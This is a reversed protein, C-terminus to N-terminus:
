KVIEFDIWQLAVRQKEKALNDTVIIQLIYEGEPFDSGLQIRSGGTIRQLDPQGAIAIPVTEGTYILKGNRFIRSQSTLQPLHTASDLQAKYVAYAFMLNAGQRFRRVPPVSGAEEASANGSPSQSPVSAGSVQASDTGAGLAIGSLALHDKRLDPVEVVQGATGVHGSTKDRVAIRFQLAGTTKVPVDFGYVVGERLIRAYQQEKLQLTATQSREYMVMGNDGFLVSDVDFAANHSGEPGDTFSLDRANVYIVSRLLSGADSPNAFLSTLRVTIENLGFPSGLAASASRSAAQQAVRAEDDTVGYFGTRTRVAFGKRKVRVTLHHFKRDFSEDVPRFGILYYGQQDDSIHKIEFDNSNATLFGGTQSAMVASGERGGFVMGSRTSLMGQLQRGGRGSPGSLKFTDGASPFTDPVGRTDIAYIVVSGRIAFEVIRQLQQQYSTEVDFGTNGAADGPGSAPMSAAGGPSAPAASYPSVGPDNKVVPMYDSLVVMSKRGPLSGLGAVIYRLARLTMLYSDGSSDQRTAVEQGSPFVNMGVRSSPNWKIHNIATLLVRRDTTFQQLAGIEGSTRLVAVLDNPAMQENVFKRLQRKAQDISQFSLGLDDVVFAITRHVDHPQLKAPMVPGETKKAPASVVSASGAPVNSVYSFNTIAQPKGDEFVEFDEANLDTVQKGGKTVVADVQVLNTNIRIVDQDAASPEQQGPKAPAPSQPAPRTQQARGPLLFCFVLILPLFNSTRM